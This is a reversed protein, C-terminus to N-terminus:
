QSSLTAAALERHENNVAEVPLGDLGHRMAGPKALEERYRRARTWHHLAARIGDRERASMGASKAAAVIAAGAGIALPKVPSVDFLGPWTKTLWALGALRARRRRNIKAKLDAPPAIKVGAKTAVTLKVPATVNVPPKPGFTKVIPKRPRAAPHPGM